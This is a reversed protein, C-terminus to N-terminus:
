SVDILREMLMDIVASIRSNDMQYKTGAFYKEFLYIEVEEINPDSMDLKEHMCYYQPYCTSKLRYFDGIDEMFYKAMLRMM